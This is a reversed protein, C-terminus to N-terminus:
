EFASPAPPKGMKREIWTVIFFSLMGFFSGFVIPLIGYPSGAIQWYLVAVSGVIISVIGANKTADKVTIGLGYAAFPGSSRLAFAFLNLTVLSINLMAISASIICITINSLRTLLIIRKDEVKPNIFRQYIDKILITSACLLNSDASSMTAAVIAAAVAGTIWSPAYATTAYMLATTGKGNDLGPNEALAVLGIITPIFALMAMMIASLVSAKQATKADEASSFRSVMEPGSLFTCFYNFILGLITVIGIKTINLEAPPLASSIADWGGAGRIIFPISILLGFFIILYQVIDAIADALMGGLTTYVIIIFAALLICANLPIGTLASVVSGAAMIQSATLCFLSIVNLVATFTGATNGFRRNVVEPITFAMTKRIRPAFYALPIMAIAAALVYWAASLGWGGFAKAAVGTTSGGGINNASLSAAVMFMGMRRGALMYDSSSKITLKNTLYGISFLVIMYVLIMIVPVIQINM